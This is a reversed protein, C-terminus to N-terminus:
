KEPPVVAVGIKLPPVKASTKYHLIIPDAIVEANPFRKHVWAPVYNDPENNESIDWVIMGGKQNVNADTAWTGTPKANMDSIGGDYINWYYHLSPRDRMAYCAYGCLSWDGTVYQCAIDFRSDWIRDCVVGFESTAFLQKKAKGNFYPAAVGSVLLIIMVAELVVVLRITRFFSDPLKKSKFQLLLWVGFYTWFPAAYAAPLWCNKIAAIIICVFFPIMFCCFLYKACQKENENKLERLRWQWVFGLMPFLVVVTTIWYEIQYTIFTLPSLLRYIQSSYAPRNSAYILTNIEKQYLWVVHPLFILIAIITTLYPGINRWRKRGEPQSFM